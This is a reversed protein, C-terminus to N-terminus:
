RRRVISQYLRDGLRHRDCATRVTTSSTLSATRASATGQSPGNTILGYKAYQYQQAHLVSYYQPKGDNTQSLPRVQFAPNQYWTRGNPGVEGFGPSEIGKQRGYEGSVQVHLRDDMFSKGWAAQLTGNKDDHYKTMGGCM